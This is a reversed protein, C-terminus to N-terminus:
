HHRTRKARPPKMVDSSSGEQSSFSFRASRSSSPLEPKVFIADDEAKRREAAALEGYMIGEAEDNSDSVTMDFSAPIMYLPATGAKDAEYLDVDEEDSSKWAMEDLPVSVVDVDINEVPARVPADADEDELDFEGELEDHYVNDQIEKFDPAFATMTTVFRRGFVHVKGKAVTIIESRYPHWQLDTPIDGVKGRLPQVVSHMRVDWITIEHCNAETACLYRADHSMAIFLYNRKSVADTFKAEHPVLDGCKADELLSRMRFLRIVRDSSNTVMYDAKRTVYIQRIQHSQGLRFHKVYQFTESDFVILHSKNTGALLYKGKPSYSISTIVDTSIDSVHRYGYLIEQEASDSKDLLRASVVPNERSFNLVTLVNNNRPHFLVVNNPTHTSFSCLTRKEVLHYVSITGNDASSAVLKGNFSWDISNIPHWHERIEMIVLKTTYDVIALNGSNTGVAAATGFRNFKITTAYFGRLNIEEMLQQPPGANQDTVDDSEVMM